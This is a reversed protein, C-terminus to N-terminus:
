MPDQPPGRMLRTANALRVEFVDEVMHLVGELVGGMSDMAVQTLALATPCDRLALV